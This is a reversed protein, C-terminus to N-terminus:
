PQMSGWSVCESICSKAQEAKRFPATPEICLQVRLTHGQLCCASVPQMVVNCWAVSRGLTLVPAEAHKLCLSM